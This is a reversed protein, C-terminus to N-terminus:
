IEDGNASDGDLGALGTRMRACLLGDEECIECYVAGMQGFWLLKGERFKADRRPDVGERCVNVLGSFRICFRAFRGLRKLRNGASKSGEGGGRAMMDGERNPIAWFASFNGLDTLIVSM